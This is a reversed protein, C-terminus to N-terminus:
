QSTWGASGRGRRAPVIATAFYSRRTLRVVILELALNNTYITTRVHAM